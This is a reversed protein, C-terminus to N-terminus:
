EIIDKVFPTERLIREILAPDNDTIYRLHDALILSTRHRDGPEVKKGGLWAEVIKSYPVGHYELQSNLISFQSNDPAAAFEESKVRLEESQLTPQSHGAHYEENYKKGFEENEYTFLKEENILIIDERTTLFAGRSADKCAEDPVKLGHGSPTIYVLLIRAKDEDSLKVYAEEWVARCDGEIHDFDIM